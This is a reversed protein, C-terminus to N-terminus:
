DKSWVYEELMENVSIKVREEQEERTLSLAVSLPDQLGKGFFDIFYGLELVVCGIDESVSAQKEMKVGSAKLKKKTVAYTPYANDSLLSYECLASIGAKKELKIDERLVFKRIVPNRLIGINEKWFEKRDDPVNIVRSKGKMGLVDINLYELEDFCRSASKRSVSLREAAESVKVENWREYIAVLLMKQTLFSILYVPTLERENANSLLYGIFPLYVQKGKPVFPIGEELLKEKIYFTTRDLFIACNLGTIKEVKARDRRLMIVPRTEFYEKMAYLNVNVRQLAALQKKLRQSVENLQTDFEQIKETLQEPTRVDQEELFRITEAFQKLNTNKAKQTGYAYSEAVANRKDCYNRLYDALTPQHLFLMGELNQVMQVAGWRDFAIERINFREGLQEIFKEIYGYHVVNGETTQLFGQREWIDYPVHDRRVRLELTDEPIWFYPLIAFKDDEDMPPFVLVFATIDTTSSLDLGGYCVRGELDDENVHFNCADWKDMPMWRVAQKVWQNLRLQRFANEEGPNQKASDCAAQVKDISVTIGLSPNAKKWVKPDTWDDTEEAGYIM